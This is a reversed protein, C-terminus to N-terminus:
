LGTWVVLSVCCCLSVIGNMETSLQRGNAVSPAHGAVRCLESDKLKICIFLSKRSRCGIPFFVTSSMHDNEEWCYIFMAISSLLSQKENMKTQM